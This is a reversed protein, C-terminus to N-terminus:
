PLYTRPGVKPATRPRSVTSESLMGDAGHSVKQSSRAARARVLAQVRKHPRKTQLFAAKGSTSGCVVLIGKIGRTEIVEQQRQAGRSFVRKSVAM